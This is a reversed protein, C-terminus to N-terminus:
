KKKVMDFCVEQKKFSVGVANQATRRGDGLLYVVDYGPFGPDNGCDESTNNLMEKAESKTIYVYIRSYQSGNGINEQAAFYIPNKTIKKFSNGTIHINKVGSGAIAHATTQKSIKNNKGNKIFKNNKIVTNDWNMLYVGADYLNKFTNGEIRIKKHYINKGNKQSYNHTGVGRSMGNFVCNKVKINRCPTKDQKAWISGIGHTSADPLDINVAEKVYAKRISSKTAKNFKCDHINVNKAANVEIYHNGNMGKFTIGSIEINKCHLVNMALGKVKCMDFVVKGEGLIKANSTGNYKGISNKVQMKNKPAFCFMLSGPAIHARYDMIKKIVVGNKFKMTVNSPVSLSYQFKYTGKKFTM